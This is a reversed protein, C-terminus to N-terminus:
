DRFVQARRSANRLHRRIHHKKPQNKITDWRHRFRKQKSRQSEIGESPPIGKVWFGEPPFEGTADFRDIANRTAKPNKGRMAVIHGDRAQKLAKGFQERLADNVVMPIYVKDIGFQAVPVNETRKWVNALACKNPDKPVACAIDEPSPCPIRIRVDQPLDIIQYEFGDPARWHSKASNPNKRAM